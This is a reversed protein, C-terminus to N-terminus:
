PSVEIGLSACLDLIEPCPWLVTHYHTGVRDSNCEIEVSCVVCEWFKANIPLENDPQHRELVRRAAAYRRLADAPDHLAIHEATARQQRGSLAYAQAAVEDDVALVVTDDDEDDIRWPGPSAAEAAKTRRDLEALIRTSLDTTM